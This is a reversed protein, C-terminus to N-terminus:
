KVKEWIYSDMEKSVVSNIIQLHKNNKKYITLFMDNAEEPVVMDSMDLLLDCQGNEKISARATFGLVRTNGGMELSLSDKFIVLTIGEIMEHFDETLVGDEAYSKEIFFPMTAEIDVNYTGTLSGICNQSFSAFSLFLVCFVINIKM